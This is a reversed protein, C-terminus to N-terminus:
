KKKTGVKLVNGYPYVKKFAKRTRFPTCLPNETIKVVQSRTCKEPNTNVLAIAIGAYAHKQHWMKINEISQDTVDFNTKIIEIVSDLNIATPIFTATQSTNVHCM